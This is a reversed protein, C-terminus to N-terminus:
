QARHRLCNTHAHLHLFVEESVTDDLIPSLQHRLGMTGKQRTDITHFLLFIFVDNNNHLFIKIEAVQRVKLTIFCFCKKNNKTFNSEQM